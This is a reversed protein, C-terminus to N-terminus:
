DQLESPDSVPREPDPGTPATPPMPEPRAKAQSMQERALALKVEAKGAYEDLDPYRDLITQFRSAAADYHGSRLYFRGVYFEHAALNRRVQRIRTEAKRAHESGPFRARLRKFAGLANEAPVQTRDIGKMRKFHTM